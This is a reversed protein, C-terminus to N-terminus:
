WVFFQLKKLFSRRTEEVLRLFIIFNMTVTRPRMFNVLLHNLTQIAPPKRMSLTISKVSLHLLKHARDALQYPEVRKRPWNESQHLRKEDVLVGVLVFVLGFRFPRTLSAPSKHHIAVVQEFEVACFVLSQPRVALGIFDDSYLQSTESQIISIANQRGIKGLEAVIPKVAIPLRM